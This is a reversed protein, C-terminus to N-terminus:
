TSEKVPNREFNKILLFELFQTSGCTTASNLFESLAPIKLHKRFKSFISTKELLLFPPLEVATRRCDHSHRPDHRISLTVATKTALLKSALQQMPTHIGGRKACSMRHERITHLCSLFTEATDTSQLAEIWQYIIDLLIFCNGSHDLRLSRINLRIVPQNVWLNTAPSTMCGLSNQGHDDVRHCRTHVFIAVTTVIASARRSSLDRLKYAM